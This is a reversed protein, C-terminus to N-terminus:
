HIGPLSTYFDSFLWLIIKLSIKWGLGAVISNENMKTNLHYQSIYNEAGPSESEGIIDKKTETRDTFNLNDANRQYLSYGLVWDKQRKWPKVVGAAMDPLVALNSSTLNFGQGLGNKFNIVNFGVANTNFNFSSNAASSLTAPNLIVAAQDEFRSLGANYLISNRAGFQM